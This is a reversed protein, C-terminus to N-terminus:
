IYFINRTEPMFTRCVVLTEVITMSCNTALGEIRCLAKPLNQVKTNVAFPWPPSMGVFSGDHQQTGKWLAFAWLQKGPARRWSAPYGPRCQRGRYAPCSRLWSKSRKGCGEFPWVLLFITVTPQWQDTAFNETSNQPPPYALAHSLQGSHSRDGRKWHVNLIGSTRKATCSVPLLRYDLPLKFLIACKIHPFFM